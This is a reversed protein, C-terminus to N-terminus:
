LGSTTLEFSGCMSGRGDAVLYYVGPELMQEIRAQTRNGEPECTSRCSDNSCAVRTTSVDETCVALLDLANDFNTCGACTDFGVMRAPGTVVVYYVLDRGAFVDSPGAGCRGGNWASTMLCTSGVTPGAPDLYIPRGCRDGADGPPTIYVDVDLTTGLAASESDVVIAWRGAALRQQLASTEFGDADDNCAVEAAGCGCARVYLVTDETAGHTTVFVDSEETLEFTLAAEPGAGGCSGTLGGAGLEVSFRGGPAAIVTAGACADCPGGGDGVPPGGDGVPPGGDGVPGGDDPGSDFQTSGDLREVEGTWPALESPQVEVTRCGEAACTTGSECSAGVCRQLLDVRLVRVEGEVFSFRARREVATAGAMNGRAVVEYPGLPGREHVLALTAPLGTSALNSSAARLEGAPSTVVFAIEDIGAPVAIDTDSVVMVGTSTDGCAGAGAMAVLLGIVGISM